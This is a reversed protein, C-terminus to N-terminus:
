ARYDSGPYVLNSGGDSSVEVALADDSNYTGAFQVRFSLRAFYQSSLNRSRQISVDTEDGGTDASNCRVAPSGSRGRM